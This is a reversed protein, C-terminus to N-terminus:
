RKVNLLKFKYSLDTYMIHLSKIPVGATLVFSSNNM